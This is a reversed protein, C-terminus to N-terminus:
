RSLIFVGRDNRSRFTAVFDTATATATYEFTGFGPLRRSGSLRVAGDEYGTVSLTQAYRFPIVKFFRGRFVARYHTADTRTFTGRLPGTHGSTQSAWSGSWRGSLDPEQARLRAGALVFVAAIALRLSM